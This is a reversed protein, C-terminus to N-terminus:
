DEIPPLKGSRKLDIAFDVLFRLTYEENLVITTEGNRTLIFGDDELVPDARPILFMWFLGGMIFLCDATGKHSCFLPMHVLNTTINLHKRSVFLLCAYDLPDGPDENLLMRRLQGKHKRELCVKEFEPRKSVAARWLLSLQFLKFSAYEIGSVLWGFPSDSQTLEVGGYIVRSAYGEWEGIRHDCAECLLKEYVGKPVRTTRESEVTSLKWMKQKEDYLRKYLFEPIIHSNCLPKEKLCLACLM